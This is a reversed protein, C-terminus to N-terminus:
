RTSKGLLYAAYLAEKLTWVAVHHFDLSDHMRAELVPVNLIKEAISALELSIAAPILVKAM